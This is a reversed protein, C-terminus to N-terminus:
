CKSCRPGAESGGRELEWDVFKLGCGRCPKIEVPKECNPCNLSCNEPPQGKHWNCFSSSNLLSDAAEERKPSGYTQKIAKRIMDSVKLDEANALRQLHKFVPRAIRINVQKDFTTGNM